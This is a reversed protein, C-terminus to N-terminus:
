RSSWNGHFGSSTLLHSVSQKSCSDFYKLDSIPDNMFSRLLNSRLGKPPENTIKVGNELVTVPFHDSPYSTLWLRFDPKLTDKQSQLKLHVLSLCSRLDLDFFM